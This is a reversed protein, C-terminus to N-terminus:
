NGGNKKYNKALKKLDDWSFNDAGGKGLRLKEKHLFDSFSDRDNIKMTKVVDNFQKNARQNGGMKDKGKSMKNLLGDKTM